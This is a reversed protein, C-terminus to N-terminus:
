YGQLADICSRCGIYKSTGGAIKYFHVRKLHGMRRQLTVGEGERGECRRRRTWDVAKLVRRSRMAVAQERWWFRAASGEDDEADEDDEVKEEDEEDDVVTM